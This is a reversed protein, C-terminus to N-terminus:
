LCPSYLRLFSVAAIAATDVKLTWEGLSVAICGSEKALNIEAQSFDGEPGIFILISSFGARSVVDKIDQNGGGLHPIIALDYEKVRVIASNFATVPELRPLKIRGAQKSAEIAISQWRRLKSACGKSSLNVITRETKLPIIRDVGLETAKEIIYDMKSKKPIACALSISLHKTLLPIKVKHILLDARDKTIKIIECEYEKSEGDFVSLSDGAKLRLVHALHHIQKKDSVTIKNKTVAEIPCYIRM